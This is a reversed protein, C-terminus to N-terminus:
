LGNEQAGSEKSIHEASTSRPSMTVSEHAPKETHTAEPDETERMHGQGGLIHRAEYEKLREEISQRPALLDPAPPQPDKEEYGGAPEDLFVISYVSEGRGLRVAPFEEVEEIEEEEEEEPEEEEETIIM